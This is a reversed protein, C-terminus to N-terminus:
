AAVIFVIGSSALALAAVAAILYKLRYKSSM